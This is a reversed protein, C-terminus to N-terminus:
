EKEEEKARAFALASQFASKNEAALVLFSVQHNEGLMDHVGAISKAQDPTISQVSGDMLRFTTPKGSTISETIAGLFRNKINTYRIEENLDDMIQKTFAAVISDDTTVVVSTGVVSVEAKGELISLNEAFESASQEKKFTVKIKKM